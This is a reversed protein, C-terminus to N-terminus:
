LESGAVKYIKSDRTTHTRSPGCETHREREQGRKKNKADGVRRAGEVGGLASTAGM